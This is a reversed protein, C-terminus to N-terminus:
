PSFISNNVNIGSMSKLSSVPHQNDSVRKEKDMDMMWLFKQEKEGLESIGYKRFNHEGTKYTTSIVNFISNKLKWEDSYHFHLILYDFFRFKNEINNKSSM